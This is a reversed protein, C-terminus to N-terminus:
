LIEKKADVSTKIWRTNRNRHSGNTRQREKRERSFNPHYHYEAFSIDNLVFVSTKIARISSLTITMQHSHREEDGHRTLSKSALSKKNQRKARTMIRKPATSETYHTHPLVFFFIMQLMETRKTM